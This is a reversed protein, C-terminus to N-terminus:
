ADVKAESWDHQWTFSTSLKEPAQQLLTACVMHNSRHPRSEGPGTSSSGGRTRAKWVTKMPHDPRTMAGPCATRRPFTGFYLIWGCSFLPLPVPLFEKQRRLSYLLLRVFRQCVVMFSQTCLCDCNGNGTLVLRHQLASSVGSIQACALVTLAWCTVCLADGNCGDLGM